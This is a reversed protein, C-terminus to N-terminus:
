EQSDKNLLIRWKPIWRVQTTRYAIRGDERWNKQYSVQRMFWWRRIIEVDALQHEVVARYKGKTM